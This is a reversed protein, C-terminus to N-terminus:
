RPSIPRPPAAGILGTLRMLLLEFAVEERQEGSKFARESEVIAAYARRLGDHGLARARRIADDRLRPFKGAGGLALAIESDPARDDLLDLISASRRYGTLLSGLLAQREDGDRLLWELREMAVALKGDQVADVFGFANTERDGACIRNVEAVGVAAGNAWLALKDLENAIALTDSQLLNALLQAPDSEPTAEEYQQREDPRSQGVRFNLGRARAENRIYAVLENGALKKLAVNEVGPLAALAKLMPNSAFARAEDSVGTFVLITTEPLGAKLAALLPEFAGLARSQRQEGGQSPAGVRGEFREFFHEVLVMRRPALFPVSIAPGVIEEARVSRGDLETLNTILMGTGGDALARLEQLRKRIALEDAGYLLVIM